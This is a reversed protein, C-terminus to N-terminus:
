KGIKRNIKIGEQPQDKEKEKEEEKAKGDKKM